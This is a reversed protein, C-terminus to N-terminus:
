VSFKKWMQWFSNELSRVFNEVQFLPPYTTESQLKERLEGRIQALESPHTALYIAKQEYEGVTECILSELGGAACISAGMRSANTNGPHTLLPLGTWLVAAATSGANYIFTDLYLDALAYRALYEDHPIKEAFILRNAEIGRQKAEAILNDQGQGSALWLVSNPVQALIRMWVDFVEPTIKYHSNFCCFVFADGPLGFEGRTMVKDSTKLPSAVFTHPLYIIEETYHQAIEPTILTRDGLYYQMFEAGMTDPYGLWQSQIPAPQLALINAGNGITYGALDIIIHIGDSYIRRAAAETSLPSLDVFVDCGSRIEQTVNDNVDVTTYCYIEFQSRDHHPFIQYILRGVAHNRFDPSIYGIRLKQPQSKSHEFNLNDKLKAVQQTITQAQSKAAAQHHALSVPLASLAFTNLGSSSTEELYNELSQLLQKLRTEYNYWNCLRLQVMAINFDIHTANPNTEQAKQYCSLAEKLKNQYEFIHGLSLNAETYDPQLDVVKQYHEVAAGLRKQEKFINALNFHAPVYEPKLQIAQYYGTKAKELDEELQYISALNSITEGLNPNLQLTKQYCQKAEAIKGQNQLLTGLNNYAIWYDPKLNIAQRLLTEAQELNGQKKLTRSRNFLEKAANNEQNQKKVEEKTSAAKELSTSEALKNSNRTTSSIKNSNYFSEWQHIRRPTFFNELIEKEKTPIQSYPLPQRLNELGKLVIEEDLNWWQSLQKSYLIPDDLFVEFHMVKYSEKPLQSFQKEIYILNSEVIKAQLYINDTFGRRIASYTTSVPNRYLILYKTEVLDSSVLDEFEIIDPRRLSQRPQCYPFSAVSEFLHTVNQNKYGQFISALKERINTFKSSEQTENEIKFRKDADWYDVLLEDWKGHEVFNDQQCYDALVSRIMHHGTGEVGILFLFKIKKQATIQNQHSSQPSTPLALQEKQQKLTQNSNPLSRDQRSVEELSELSILQAIEETQFGLAMPRKVNPIVQVDYLETIKGELRLWHAIAGTDLDVVMLGCRAEGDKQQLLDDLPLGSFTKDGNRPKSLGVIAYNDWFALGRLYGPCFAVPEFKGTQLDVYGLEGRGSNHLWLRGQYWRPSHPMSLGTCIIENSAVDIVIGGGIRRDRLPMGFAHDRWGDVLNSQSCATVFGPEGDVMALGNLHCRDENIIRSIFAPKWLPKCSKYDSVTALCNLLTSVFIIKGDKDVTVDHIDLDGTTYGIRPIYLKDYGQHLQGPTLTNDLQWLQYKCSLYIREPTACLGMARDYFRQFGQLQGSENGGLFFLQGTQYTTLALSLNQQALWQPFQRSSFIETSPKKNM